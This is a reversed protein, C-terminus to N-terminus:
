GLPTLEKDFTIMNIDCMLIHLIYYRYTPKCDVSAFNTQDTVGLMAVMRGQDSLRSLGCGTNIITANHFPLTSTKAEM